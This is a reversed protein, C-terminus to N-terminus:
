IASSPPRILQRELTTALSRATQDIHFRAQYCAAARERMARQVSPTLSLWRELLSLTGAADDQAALGAGDEIIERWIDVQDSIVVPLGCALAEAVVVGFNENHSPLAFVDAARYAGWKLDGTLMGTWTIRQGVGLSLARAELIAQWGTQDPGAMVLHLSADGRAVHAFADILLDCGKKLHLRSLFLVLRKGRLEPFREFFCQRQAETDGTPAAIGLHVIEERCRYPWFSTRAQRRETESTFIVARADRLVRYEAWPWYLYKKLHKLPYARRFWTALAGHTFVFYPTSRRRLARWAGLSAYQWIGHVVVADHRPANEELWPVLRRSYAYAASGLQLAGPGLAAVPVPFASSWPREPADLSAVSITHGQQILACVCQRLAEVQGGLSPDLSTIVHLMRM